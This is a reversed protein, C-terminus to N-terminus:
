VADEAEARNGLMRYAVATLHARHQEFAEGV